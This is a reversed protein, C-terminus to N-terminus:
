FIFFCSNLSSLSIQSDSKNSRVQDGGQGAFIYRSTVAGLSWGARLFVNIPSPGAPCGAVFTAVGKRFSHTGIEFSVNGLTQLSATSNVLGERLWKGFRSETASGCFLMHKAGDRRWGSSFILVAMSLVPCITPNTTNAFVHKPYCNNGEQDGKHKPTTILLSDGEWSIHQFMISGVSVSRAMLNWCLLLFLHSFSGLQHDRSQKLAVGALFSYGAFTLPTKGEKMKMEGTLKKEAVLRKYGGSFSAFTLTTQDDLRLHEKEYMWVIASRYSGVLSVTAPRLVNTRPDRIQSIKAMFESIINHPVPLIAVDKEPDYHLPHSDRIWKTFTLIKRDYANRTSLKRKGAMISEALVVDSGREVDNQPENLEDDSSDSMEEATHYLILSEYRM